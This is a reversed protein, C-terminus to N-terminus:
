LWDIKSGRQIEGAVAGIMIVPKTFSEGLRGKSSPFSGSEGVLEGEPSYRRRWDAIVVDYPAATKTSLEGLGIADVQAFWPRLLLGRERRYAIPDPGFVSAYVETMADLIASMREQKSGRNALFLSRYKGSFASGM